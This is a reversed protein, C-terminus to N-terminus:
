ETTLQKLLIRQLVKLKPGCEWEKHERKTTDGTYDMREYIFDDRHKNSKM